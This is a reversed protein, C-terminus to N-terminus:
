YPHIQMPPPIRAVASESDLMFRPLLTIRRPRAMWTTKKPKKMTTVTTNWKRMLLRGVWFDCAIEPAHFFNIQTSYAQLRNIMTRETKLIISYASPLSPTRRCFSTYTYTSSAVSINKTVTKSAQHWGLSTRLCCTGNSLSLSARLAM